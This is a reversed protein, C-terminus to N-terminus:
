EFQRLPHHPDYEIPEIVSQIRQYLVNSKYFSTHNAIVGLEYQDLNNSKIDHNTLYDRIEM